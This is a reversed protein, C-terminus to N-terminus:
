KIEEGNEDVYVLNPMQVKCLLQVYAYGKATTHYIKEGVIPDSDALEILNNNLFCTIVEAIVATNQHEIEATRTYCHLLINIHLPTM